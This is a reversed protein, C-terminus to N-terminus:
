FAYNCRSDPWYGQDSPPERIGNDQLSCQQVRDAQERHQEAQRREAEIAKPEALAPDPDQRAPGGPAEHGVRPNGRVVYVVGQVDDVWREPIDAGVLVVKDSTAWPTELVEIAAQAASGSSARLLGEWM